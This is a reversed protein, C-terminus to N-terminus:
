PACGIAVIAPGLAGTIEGLTQAPQQAQAKAAAPASELVSALRAAPVLGYSAQPVIGAVIRPPTKLPLVLGAIRGSRDVVAGGTAGAQLPALLRARGDSPALIEGPTAMLERATPLGGYSLTVVAEGTQPPDSRWAPVPVAPTAAELLVLGTEADTRRVSAPKGGVSPKACAQLDITTVIRNAAVVVGTATIPQVPAASAALPISQGAPGASGPPGGAVGVGAGPFPEFSNAVAIVIRDLSAALEPVYSITFGRLGAPGGDPARSVRTYFRRGKDEGTVVLWEPRLVKYTVRRTPGETKLAEFLTALDSSADGVTGAEILVSGDAASFRTGTKTATRKDLLRQPVGIRIGSREETVVAFRLDQRAKKAAAELAAREQADLQGDPKLRARTEFKVLADFTRKGFGGDVAGNYDGTWVLADQIARREAEPMAEFATRAAQLQAEPPPTQAAASSLVAALALLAPALLAVGTARRGKQESM